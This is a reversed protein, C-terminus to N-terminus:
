AAEPMLYRQLTPGVIDVLADAPTSALPEIRVAYRALAIGILHSSALEARLGPTEGGIFASLPGLIFRTVAERLLAASAPHTLRVVM